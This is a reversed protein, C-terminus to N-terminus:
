RCEQPRSSSTRLCKGQVADYGCTSWAGSSQCNPAAAATWGNSGFCFPKVIIGGAGAAAAALKEASAAGAFGAIGGFGGLGSTCSAASDVSTVTYRKEETTDCNWDDDAATSPFGTIHVTQWATNDDAASYPRVKADKDWCDTTGTTPVTSTWGGTVGCSAHPATPAACQQVSPAGAPAFTDKDCDVYWNPALEDKQGNCNNDKSDCLEAAGKYVTKDNDNCDDGCPGLTEAAHGDLDADILPYYCGKLPDCKDDTCINGDSCSLPTGSTCTSTSPSCIENGTCLNNDECEDDSTCRALCNGNACIYTAGADPGADGSGILPTCSTGNRLATGARCFGNTCTEVGNCSEKDDCEAPQTCPTGGDTPSGATGASGDNMSGSSGSSGSSGDPADVFERDKDGCAFVILPVLSAFLASRSVRVLM